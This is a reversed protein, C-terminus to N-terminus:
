SGVCACGRSAQRPRSESRLRWHFYSRQAPRLLAKPCGTYMVLFDLWAKAVGEFVEGVMLESRWRDQIPAPTSLAIEFVRPLAIQAHSRRGIVRVVPDHDGGYEAELLGRFRDFASQFSQSTLAIVRNVATSRSVAEDGFTTILVTM